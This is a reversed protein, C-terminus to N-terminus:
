GARARSAPRAPGQLPRSGLWLLWSAVPTLLVIVLWPISLAPALFMPIEYRTAGRKVIQEIWFDQFANGAGYVLLFGTYVTLLMQSRGPALHGLTRSVLLATLALLVGALGHHFGDHVAQHLGPVSPQSALQDTLFISGLGPVNNLSLGFDAALWPLAGALLVAALAIRLADGRERGLRGAGNTRWATVTMGLAVLSGTAALARTPTVRLGTEELSGPWLVFVVVLTTAAVGAIVLNRRARGLVIPFVAIAALGVPFSLYAVTAAAGEGLGGFSVHYLERIPTRTYTTFVGFAVFGLITWAVLIDAIGTRRAGMASVM